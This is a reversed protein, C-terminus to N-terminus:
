SPSFDFPIFLNSCDLHRIAMRTMLTIFWANKTITVDSLVKTGVARM